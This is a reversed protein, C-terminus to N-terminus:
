GQQDKIVRCNKIRPWFAKLSMKPVIGKTALYDLYSRSFESSARFNWYGVDPVSLTQKSNGVRLNGAGQLLYEVEDIKIEFDGFHSHLSISDSGFVAHKSLAVFLIKVFYVLLLILMPLYSLISTQPYINVRVIAFVVFALMVIIVMALHLASEFQVEIKNL